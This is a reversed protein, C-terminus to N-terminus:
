KVFFIRLIVKEMLRVEVEAKAAETAELIRPLEGVSATQEIYELEKAMESLNKTQGKCSKLTTQSPFM